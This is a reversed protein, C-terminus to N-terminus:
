RYVEKPDFTQTATLVWEANTLTKSFCSKFGLHCVGLGQAQVKLVVADQDCDTLIEKVILRHGSSEGKLWLKKRSRSWFTAFGTELTLRWADDNMFAVMLVDGSDVDQIITPVLGDLKTFDLNM